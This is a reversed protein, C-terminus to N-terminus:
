GCSESRFSKSPRFKVRRAPNSLYEQRTIPHHRYRAKCPHVTFVGLGLVVREGNGISKRISEVAAELVARVNERKRRSKRAADDILEQTTM